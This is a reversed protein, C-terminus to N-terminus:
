NATSTPTPLCGPRMRATPTSPVPPHSLLRSRVTPSRRAQVFVGIWGVGAASSFSVDGQTPPNNAAFVKSLYGQGILTTLDLTDGNTPYNGSLALVLSLRLQQGSTNMGVIRPTIAM